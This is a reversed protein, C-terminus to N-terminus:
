LMGREKTYRLSVYMYMYIYITDIYRYSTCKPAHTQLELERYGTGQKSGGAQQRDYNLM